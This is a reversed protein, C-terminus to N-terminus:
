RSVRDESWARADPALGAEASVEGQPETEPELMLPLRMRFQAGGLPSQTVDIEGGIREIMLRVVALGIGSGRARANSGRRALDFISDRETRAVGPGDDDVRVEVYREDLPGVSVVVHGRERGHKIANDLVNVLAQVFRDAGIAVLSAGGGATQSVTTGRASAFPAVVSLAAAIAPGITTSEVHQAGSRLDLMSVDFMGDVLRGMRMAENRAVELFRRATPPDLEEELLTELYGRISTLPTRLEHGITSFFAYRERERAGRELASEIARGLSADATPGYVITWGTEVGLGGGVEAASALRALTARCDTPTAVSGATRTPSILAALFDESEDDHALLDTSRLTRSATQVFSRLATKEVARAASRGERWAIRELDRLRVVLLPVPTSGAAARLRRELEALDFIPLESSLRRKRSNTALVTCPTFAHM